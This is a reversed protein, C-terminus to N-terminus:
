AAKLASDDTLQALAKAAHQAAYTLDSMAERSGSYQHRILGDFEVLADRLVKNAVQSAQLEYQTKIWDASVDALRSRLEETMQVQAARWCERLVRLSEGDDSPLYGFRFKAWEDFTM